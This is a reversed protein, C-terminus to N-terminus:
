KKVIGGNEKGIPKTIKQKKSPVTSFSDQMRCLAEEKARGM